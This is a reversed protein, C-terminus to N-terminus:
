LKRFYGNSYEGAYLVSVKEPKDRFFEDCARKVGPSKYASATYPRSFIQEDYYVGFLCIAGPALREYVHPLVHKTSTYLDGDVIAFSIQDPLGSPITDEFWGKHIQPLKLGVDSFNKKFLDLKADMWGKGYIGDKADQEQLEPLGEFSDFVHFQKESAQESLVKQIVISSEGANCGVEVVDGPVNYAITQSVLHFINIRAEVTALDPTRPTLQANLRLRRLIGNVWRHRPRPSRHDWDFYTAVFANDM